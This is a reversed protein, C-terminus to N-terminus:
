RRKLFYRIIRKLIYKTAPKLLNKIKKKFAGGNEFARGEDDEYHDLLGNEADAFPFTVVVSDGYKLNTVACGAEEIIGRIGCGRFFSGPQSFSGSSDQKDLGKKATAIVKLTVFADTTNPHSTNHGGKEKGNIDGPIM